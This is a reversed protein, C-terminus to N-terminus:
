FRRPSVTKARNFPFNYGMYLEHTGINYRAYGVSLDYSYGFVYRDLHEYRIMAGLTKNFRYLVGLGFREKYHLLGAMELLPSSGSALGVLLSPKVELEESILYSSTAGMYITRHTRSWTSAEGNFPSLNSNLLKPVSLSVSYNGFLYNFGIGVNPQLKMGPDEGFLQDGQDILQLTSLRIQLVRVEGQLGMMLKSEESIQLTYSYAGSFGTQTVPGMRDHSLAIGLGFNKNKMRTHAMLKNSSPSGEWSIWQQRSFLSFGPIDRDGAFAPNYLMRNYLHQSFFLQEQGVAGPIVTVLLLIGLIM